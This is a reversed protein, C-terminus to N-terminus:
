GYSLGADPPIAIRLSGGDDGDFEIKEIRIDLSAPKDTRVIVTALTVNTDGQNIINLVM